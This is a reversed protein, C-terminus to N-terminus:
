AQVACRSGPAEHCLPYKLHIFFSKGVEEQLNFLTEVPPSPTLILHGSLLLLVLFTPRPHLTMWVLFTLSKFIQILYYFNLVASHVVAM